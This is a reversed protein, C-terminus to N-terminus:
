FDLNLWSLSFYKIKALTLFNMLFIGAIETWKWKWKKAAVTQNLLYKILNDCAPLGRSKLMKKQATDVKM